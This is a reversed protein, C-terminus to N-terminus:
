PVRWLELWANRVQTTGDMARYEISLDVAGAINNMYYCGSESSFQKIGCHAQALTQSDNFRVRCEGQPPGGQRNNKAELGYGIRYNGFPLPPTTLRLKQVFERSSTSCLGASSARQIEPMSGGGGAGMNLCAPDFAFVKQLVKYIQAQKTRLIYYFCINHTIPAHGRIFITKGCDLEITADRLEPPFSSSQPEHFTVTGTLERRKIGHPLKFTIAGTEDECAHLTSDSFMKCVTMTPVETKNTMSALAEFGIEAAGRKKDSMQGRVFFIASKCLCGVLLSCVASTCSIFWRLRKGAATNVKNM